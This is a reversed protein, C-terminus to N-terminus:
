SAVSDRVTDVALHRPSSNLFLNLFLALALHNKGKGYGVLNPSKAPSSRELGSTADIEKHRITNWLDESEDIYSNPEQSRKYRLLSLM